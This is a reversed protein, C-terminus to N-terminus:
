HSDSGHRLLIGERMPQASEVERTRNLIHGAWDVILEGLREQSWIPTFAHDCDEVFELRLRDVSALLKEPSGYVLNMVDWAVSGESCIALVDIKRSQLQALDAEVASRERQSDLRRIQHALSGVLVGCAARLNSAGRLLRKWRDLNFWQRRYYRYDTRLQARQLLEPSIECRTLSGNILVAALVRQDRLALDFGIDAGTCLGVPICQSAIGMQALHDMAAQAEGVARQLFPAATRFPASDGIGSFDFRLVPMGLAALRRALAVHM